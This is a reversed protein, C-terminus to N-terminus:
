EMQLHDARIFALPRATLLLLHRVMVGMSPALLDWGTCSAESHEAPLSRSWGSLSLVSIECVRVGLLFDESSSIRHRCTVSASSSCLDKRLVCNQCHWGWGEHSGMLQLIIITIIVGDALNYNMVYLGGDILLQAKGQGARFIYRDGLSVTVCLGTPHLFRDCWCRATTFHKEDIKPFKAIETALPHLTKHKLPLGPWICPPLVSCCWWTPTKRSQALLASRAFVSNNNDQRYLNAESIEFRGGAATEMSKLLHLKKM